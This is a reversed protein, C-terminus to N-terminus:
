EHRTEQLAATFGNHQNLVATAVEFGLCDCHQTSGRVKELAEAADALAERLRAVEARLALVEERFSDTERM